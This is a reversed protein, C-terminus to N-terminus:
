KKYKQRLAEYIVLGAAMAVNLSEVESKMPITLSGETAKIINEPLGGGEQGFIVATPKSFDVEWFSTHGTTSTAWIQYGWSPLKSVAKEIDQNMLFPLRFISGMSSRVTKPNFPDVTNSSLVLGAAGGAEAVRFITGLNGPDQIQHLLLILGEKLLIEEWTWKKIKLVAMVGQHTRTDTMKDLVEDSVYVWEATSIKQRLCSLLEAGRSNKELRPSYIIIKILEPNQLAETVLRIGEAFYEQRAHRYKAQHLLRIEKVKPNSKSTIM